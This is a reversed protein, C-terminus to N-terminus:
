GLLYGYAWLLPSTMVSVLVRQSASMARRWEDDERVAVPGRGFRMPNGSVTHNTGLSIAGDDLFALDRDPVVVEAYALVREIARRPSRVLSEYRVFLHPVGRAKMLEHELNRVTWAISSQWPPFTPM